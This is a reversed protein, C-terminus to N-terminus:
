PALAPSGQRGHGRPANQLPCRARSAHGRLELLGPRDEATSAQMHRGPVQRPHLMLASPLKASSSPRRQLMLWVCGQTAHGASVTHAFSVSHFQGSCLVAGAPELCRSAHMQSSPNKTSYWTYAPM